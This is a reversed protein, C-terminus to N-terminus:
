QSVHQLPCHFGNCCRRCLCHASALRVLRGQLSGQGLKVGAGGLLPKIPIQGQRQSQLCSIISQIGNGLQCGMKQSRHLLLLARGLALQSRGLCGGGARTCVQAASVPAAAAARSRALALAALLAPAPAAHRNPPGFEYSLLDDCGRCVSCRKAVSGGESGGGMGWYRSGEWATCAMCHPVAAGGARVGVPAIAAVAAHTLRQRSHPPRLLLLPPPLLLLLLQLLLGSPHTTKAGSSTAVAACAVETVTKCLSCCGQPRDRAAKYALKSNVHVTQSRIGHVSQQVRMAFLCGLADVCYTFAPAKCPQLTWGGSQM